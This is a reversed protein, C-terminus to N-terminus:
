KKSPLTPPLPLGDNGGGGGFILVFCAGLGYCTAVEPFNFPRHPPAKVESFETMSPVRVLPDM